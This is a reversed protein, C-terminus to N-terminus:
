SFILSTDLNCWHCNLLVAAKEIECWSVSTRNRIHRPILSLVGGPVQGLWRHTADVLIIIIDSSNKGNDPLLASCAATDLGVCM